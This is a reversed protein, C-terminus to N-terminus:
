KHCVVEKNQSLQKENKMESQSRGKRKNRTVHQEQEAPQKEDKKRYSSCEKGEKRFSFVRSKKLISREKKM